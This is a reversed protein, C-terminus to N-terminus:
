CKNCVGQILLNLEHRVFGTPLVIAPVNIQDLCIIKGCTTCKFHVHDHHHGHSACVEKCLAYRLGDEALVKHLIGKELYTKLTRYITVRDFTALDKELNGHSLASNQSMFYALVAERCATHRLEHRLLINKIFTNM